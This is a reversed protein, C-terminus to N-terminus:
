GGNEHYNRFSRRGAEMPDIKAWPWPLEATAPSPQAAAASTMGAASGILGGAVFAAGGNLFSRRSYPVRHSDDTM